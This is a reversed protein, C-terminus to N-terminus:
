EAAPTYRIVLNEIPTVTQLYAYIARLDEEKMTAYMSWPMPSNFQGPQVAPLAISSDAYVKFRNVFQEETWAGIGTGTDPTINASRTVDGSPFMFEFDGAFEMGEVYAGQEMKTHCDNCAAATVLYKGYAVRDTTDPKKTFEAKAPITNIIFNMPFDPASEPLDHEIPDLTRIYAIIDYIDEKDIKGYSQYPMVPFLAKGDKNVGTTIARFLEGDTWDGMNYPTINRAYFNGPFGMLANFEEGGKGLTGDVLPGSFLSFDRESHCDMCVMISHALYEGREIRESTLEVTLEPAPEANPLFAKVYILLGSILVLVGALIFGAIKLVKKM